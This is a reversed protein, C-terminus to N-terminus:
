ASARASSISRQRRQGSADAAGGRRRRRIRRHRRQDELAALVQPRRRRAGRAHRRRERARLAHDQRPDPVRHRAAVGRAAAHPPQEREQAPPRPRPAQLRTGVSTGAVPTGGTDSRCTAGTAPRGRRAHACPPPARVDREVVEVKASEGASPEGSAPAPSRPPVNRSRRPPITSRPSRVTRPTRTLPTSGRRPLARSRIEPPRPPRAAPHPDRRAAHHAAPEAAPRTRARSFAPGGRGTALPARIGPARSTPVIGACLPRKKRGVATTAQKRWRGGIRRHWALKSSSCAWMLLWAVSVAPALARSAARCPASVWISRWNPLPVTIRIPSSPACTADLRDGRPRQREVEREADAAHRAPADDLDVARLGGALRREDVVHEGLRLLEAAHAREDVRLVRHVRQVGLLMPTSM